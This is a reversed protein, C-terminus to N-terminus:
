DPLPNTRSKMQALARSPHFPNFISPGNPNSLMTPPMQMTLLPPLRAMLRLASRSILLIALCFTFSTKPSHIGDKASM